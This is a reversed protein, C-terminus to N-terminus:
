IRWSPQMLSVNLRMLLHIGRVGNIRLEQRLCRSGPVSTGKFYVQTGNADFFKTGKISLPSFASSCLAFLSLFLFLVGLMRPVTLSRFPPFSLRRNSPRVCPSQNRTHAPGGGNKVARSDLTKPPFKLVGIAARPNMLPTHSTSVDEFRTTPIPM